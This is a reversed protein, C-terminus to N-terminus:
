KLLGFILQSVCSFILFFLSNRLAIRMTKDKTFLLVYNKFGVFEIPYNVKYNCFSFYVARCVPYFLVATFLIFAPAIFLLIAKKNRLLKDMFGEREQINKRHNVDYIGVM